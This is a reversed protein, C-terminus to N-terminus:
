LNCTGQINVVAVGLGFPRSSREEGSGDELVDKFGTEKRKDRKRKQCSRSSSLGRRQRHIVRGTLTIASIAGGWM